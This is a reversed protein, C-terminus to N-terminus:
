SRNFLRAVKTLSELNLSDYDVLIQQILQTLRHGSVTPTNINYNLFVGGLKHAMREAEDFPSTMNPSYYRPDDMIILYNHITQSRPILSALLPRTAKHRKNLRKEQAFQVVDWTTIVFIADMKKNNIFYDATNLGRRCSIKNKRTGIFPYPYILVKGTPFSCGCMDSADWTRGGLWVTLIEVDKTKLSGSEM